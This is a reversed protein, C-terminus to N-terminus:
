NMSCTCDITLLSASVRCVAFSHPSSVLATTHTTILMQLFVRLQVTDSLVLQVVALASTCLDNYAPFTDETAAAVPIVRLQRLAMLMLLNDLSKITTRHFGLARMVIHNARFAETV